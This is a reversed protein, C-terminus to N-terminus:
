KALLGLGAAFHKVMALPLAKALMDTVQNDLPLTTCAKFDGLNGGDIPFAHGLIAYWDVAMSGNTHSLTTDPRMALAAWDLTDFVERHLADRTLTITATIDPISTTSGKLDGSIDPAPSLLWSVEKGSPMAAIYNSKTTLPESPTIDQHKSSWPIARGDTLSAHGLIARWYKAM